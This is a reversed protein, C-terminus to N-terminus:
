YSFYIMGLKRYACHNINVLMDSINRYMLGTVRTNIDKSKQLTTIEKESIQVRIFMEQADMVRSHTWIAILPLNIDEVGMESVAAFTKPIFLPKKFVSRCDVNFLIEEIKIAAPMEFDNVLCKNILDTQDGMQIQLRKPLPIRLADCILLVACSSVERPADYAIGLMLNEAAEMVSIPSPVGAMDDYNFFVRAKKVANIKKFDRGAFTNNIEEINLGFSSIYRGM